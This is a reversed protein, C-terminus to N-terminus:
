RKRGLFNREKRTFDCFHFDVRYEADNEWYIVLQLLRLVEDGNPAVELLYEMPFGNGYKSSTFVVLYKRLVNRLSGIMGYEANYAKDVALHLREIFPESKQM